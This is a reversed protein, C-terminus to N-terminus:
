ENYTLKDENALRKLAANGHTRWLKEFAAKNKGVHYNTSKDDFGTARLILVRPDWGMNLNYEALLGKINYDLDDYNPVLGKIGMKAFKYNRM